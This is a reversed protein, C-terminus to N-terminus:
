CARSFKQELYMKRKHVMYCGEMRGKSPRNRKFLSCVAVAIHWDHSDDWYTETIGM